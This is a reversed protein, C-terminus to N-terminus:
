LWHSMFNDMEEAKAELRQLFTFQAVSRILNHQPKRTKYYVDGNLYDTLFRVTQMYTLLRGGYPLLKIETPTLFSRARDMYGRTYAEFIEMNVQIHDLDEDDEAGTNVATRIFDGIDSLVFGPMVTDLDVVCLVRDTHTDFLVNNVKTDLHNTRRPLKDEAFLREQILMDYSRKQIEDILWQAEAVRGAKDSQIAEDLQQLRFSMKHFNPITEGLAGDPIDSLMAQFDGFARGAEEALTPTISDYSISDPIFLSLRWYSGDHLLYKEGSKTRIFTLVKRDIDETGQEKLKHRIHETVAFINNQLTEVDTFITHNIRQLVYRYESNGAPNYVQVGFTDNIHGNGIPHVNVIEESIPFASLIDTYATNM